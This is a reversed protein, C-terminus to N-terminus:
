GEVLERGEVAVHAVLGFGEERVEDLAPDEEALRRRELRQVVKLLHLADRHELLAHPM